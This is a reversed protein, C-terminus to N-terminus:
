GGVNISQALKKDLANFDAAKDGMTMAFRQLLNNLDDLTSQISTVDTHYQQATDMHWSQMVTNADHILDGIESEISSVVTRIDDISRDISSYNYTIQDSM